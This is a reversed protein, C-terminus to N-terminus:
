INANLDFMKKGLHLCLSRFNNSTIIFHKNEIIKTNQNLIQMKMKDEKYKFHRNEGAAGYWQLTKM